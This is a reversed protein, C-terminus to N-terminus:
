NLLVFATYSVEFLIAHFRYLVYFMNLIIYKVNTKLKQRPKPPEEKKSKKKPPPPKSHLHIIFINRAFAHLLLFLTLQTIVFM